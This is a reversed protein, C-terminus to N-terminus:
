ERAHEARVQKKRSKRQPMKSFAHIKRNQKCTQVCGLVSLVILIIGDYLYCLRCCRSYCSHFLGWEIFEYNPSTASLHLNKRETHTIPTHEKTGFQHYSIIYTTASIRETDVSNSFQRHERDQRHLTLPARESVGGNMSIQLCKSASQRVCASVWVGPVCWGIHPTPAM